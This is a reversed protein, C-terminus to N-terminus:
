LPGIWRWITEQIKPSNPKHAPISTNELPETMSKCLAPVKRLLDHAHFAEVCMDNPLNPATERMTQTVILSIFRKPLAILTRVTEQAAVVMLAEAEKENTKKAVRHKHAM